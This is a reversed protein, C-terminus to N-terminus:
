AKSKAVVGTNAPAEPERETPFRNLAELFAWPHTEM